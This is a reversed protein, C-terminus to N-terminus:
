ARSRVTQRPMLRIAAAVSMRIAYRARSVTEIM